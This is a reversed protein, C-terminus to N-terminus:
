CNAYNNVLCLVTTLPERECSAEKNKLFIWWSLIGVSGLRCPQEHGEVYERDLVM